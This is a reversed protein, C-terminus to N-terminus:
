SGSGTWSRELGLLVRISTAFIGIYAGINIGRMGASNPVTLIWDSVKPFGSWITEGIPAQGLMILVAAIMLIAAELNRAKFSRYAASVIYFGLIAYIASGIPQSVNAVMWKPTPGDPTQALVFPLYLYIALLTVISYTWNVRRRRINNVHLRSLEIMGMLMAFTSMVISWKDLTTVLAPLNWFNFFKALMVVLGSVFVIILPLEKQM